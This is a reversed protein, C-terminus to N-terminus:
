FVHTLNVFSREIIREINLMKDTKVKLSIRQQVLDLECKIM